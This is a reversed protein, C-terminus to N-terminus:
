IDLVSVPILISSRWIHSRFVRSEQNYQSTLTLQLSVQQFWVTILFWDLRSNKRSTSDKKSLASWISARVRFFSSHVPSIAASLFVMDRTLTEWHILTHSLMMHQGGVGAPWSATRGQGLWMLFISVELFAERCHISSPVHNTLGNLLRVQVLKVWHIPVVVPSLERETGASISCCASETRNIYLMPYPNDRPDNTMATM